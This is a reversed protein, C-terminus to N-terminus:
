QYKFKLPQLLSCCGNFVTPFVSNQFQFLKTIKLPSNVKSKIPRLKVTTPVRRELQIQIRRVNKHPFAIEFPMKHMSKRTTDVNVATSSVHQTATLATCCTSDDEPTTYDSCKQKKFIGSIICAFKPFHVRDCTLVDDGIALYAFFCFCFCFVFVFAFCFLVFCFCFLVFCFLVFM